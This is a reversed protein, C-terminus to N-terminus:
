AYKVLGKPVVGMEYRPLAVSQYLDQPTVRGAIKDVVLLGGQLLGAAVHESCFWSDDEQWDRHLSIGLVATWDYPKGTQEKLWIEASPGVFARAFQFKTARSLTDRVSSAVVGKGFLAEHVVGSPTVLAVHSWPSWTMMRIIPSGISRTRMFLVYLYRNV